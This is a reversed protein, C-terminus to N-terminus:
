PGPTGLPGVIVVVNPAVMPLVVSSVRTVLSWARKLTWTAAERGYGLEGVHAIPSGSAPGAVTGGVRERLHSVLSATM